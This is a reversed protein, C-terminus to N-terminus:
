RQGVAVPEKQDTPLTLNLESVDGSLIVSLSGDTELVVAAVDDLGAGGAARVAAGIEEETFREQTMNQRLLQGRFLLLTPQSKVLSQFAVSRVSLWTVIYQMLILMAFATAGEALTVSKNLVVTAFASGLAITIVLDFANMKTLTRKGSIRLFLILSVYGLVAIILVRIVGQWNEFFIQDM